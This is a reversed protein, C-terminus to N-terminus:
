LHSSEELLHAIVRLRSLERVLRQAQHQYLPVPLVAPLDQMVKRAIQLSCGSILTIENAGHFVADSTMAREIKVQWHKAALEGREIRQLSHSTALVVLRDGIHLRTDDTPMIRLADRRSRQYLIPVVGYGYAIEALILGNLTDGAEISYETVLITQNQLHFLGMVNEGFAAAAFVEASLASACLVQAYPFLQAVNDSFHRDYTRIVIGSHPSAAHAMLAIELNLMDDDTVVIISKARSLHVRELTRAISGFLVPIHPLTSPAIATNDIGVVPQKFEQLLAAVRQGLRDLGVLVVHNQQPVHLRRTFLQFRSSLVAETLTAYLIGVFVTGAITLGLSFLHLWLPILFPLKLQGFLNDFGGLLLVVTVNLADQWGLDPYHWCFLLTGCCLLMLVTMGCIGAV